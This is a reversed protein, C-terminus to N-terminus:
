ARRARPAQLEKRKVTVRSLWATPLIQRYNIYSARPAPQDGADYRRHVAMLHTNDIHFTAM